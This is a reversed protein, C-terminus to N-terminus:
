NPPKHLLLFTRVAGSIVIACAAESSVNGFTKEDADFYAALNVM